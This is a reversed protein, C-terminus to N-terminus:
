VLLAPLVFLWPNIAIRFAYNQLWQRIGWWALPWGILTAVLVLRLFDKSLLFLINPVGAGLVKRVGIEKTRQTTSFVSLGFLGLCAVFIALGAFLAFAKGFRRDARYQQDFFEDLFFYDFPNGPFIEAYKRGILSLTEAVNQPDLKISYHRGARPNLLFIMPVYNEKLSKQHYNNVVGVIEYRFDPGYTIKQHLAEAPSGFGFARIAAENLIAAKDDTRFERAFSRGALLRIGFAAVFDHDAWVLSFDTLNREQSGERKLGTDSYTNTGPVADTVTFSRVSPYRLVENRFADFQQDFRKSDVLIPSKLVLTQGVNLGLDQNRMFTLQQYVAFTGTMLLLSVAFQFIVLGKRLVWGGASSRWKGKVVAAPKLSALVFAPYLGSFLTGATFLLGFALWFPTSLWLSWPVSQDILQNFVPLFVQVLTVALAGAVANLLCSELLFQGILQRRSAGAVKRVGVEKAREVSRATSLNIYNVWAILLIFLAILGMFYIMRVNGNEGAEQNLDSYLHIDRLPQLFLEERANEQKLYQGRYRAVFAPLKAALTGPPLGPALGVYTYAAPSRWDTETDGLGRYALLINFQLHSNPPVDRFVGRVTKPQDGNGQKFHLVQGVPNERGFHKRAMSESIVAADPERLATAPDGSVLPFSFLTLFSEDAFYVKDEKFAVERYFRAARRSQPTEPVVRVSNNNDATDVDPNGPDTIWKGNVVFKYGYRGPMLRVRGVWDNGVKQLPKALPNWSNFSGALAVRSSDRFGSLRFLVSQYTSTDLGATHSVVVDGFFPRLRAYNEVEPFDRKLAPGVANYVTASQGELQGAAFRRGAVRYTRAAQRHFDDFSTEFFVYQLVLLCGAVGIALGLVNILSFIKHRM